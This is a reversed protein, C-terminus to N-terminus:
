EGKLARFANVFGKNVKLYEPIDASLANDILKEFKQKRKM